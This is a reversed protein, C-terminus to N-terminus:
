DIVTVARRNKSWADAGSGAVAPREKGYTIVNVRSADVGLATLYNLAANARREGLALNYERTGREDAHGEVTVNISDYKKLWQAQRRLTEKATSSLSSSDTEFYVKAGVARDFADQNAGGTLDTGYDSVRTDANGTGEVPAADYMDDGAAATNDDRYDYDSSCAALLSISAALTLFKTANIM